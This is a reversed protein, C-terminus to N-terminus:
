PAERIRDGLSKGNWSAFRVEDWWPPLPPGKTDTKKLEIYDEATSLSMRVMEQALKGFDGEVEYLAIHTWGDDAGAMPEIEFRQASVFGPIELIEQLHAEYWTNWDEASVGDPCHSLVIQIREFSTM